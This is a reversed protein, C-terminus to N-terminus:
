NHWKGEQKQCHHTGDDSPGCGDPKTIYSPQLQCDGKAKYHENHDLDHNNNCNVLEQDHCTDKFDAKSIQFSQLLIFGTDLPVPPSREPSPTRNLFPMLLLCVFVLRFRVVVDKFIAQRSRMTPSLAIQNSYPRVWRRGASVVQAPWSSNQM